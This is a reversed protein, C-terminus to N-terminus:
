ADGRILWDTGCLFADALKVVSDISPKRVGCEYHSIVGPSLGAENALREQSWNREKRSKYIRDKIKGDHAPKTNHVIKNLLPLDENFIIITATANDGIEITTESIPEAFTKKRPGDQLGNTRLITFLLECVTAESIRKNM